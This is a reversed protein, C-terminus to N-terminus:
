LLLIEVLTDDVVNGGYIGLKIVNEKSLLQQPSEGAAVDVDRNKVQDDIEITRAVVELVFGLVQIVILESRKCLKFIQCGVM